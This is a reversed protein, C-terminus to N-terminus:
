PQTRAVFVDWGGATVLPGLQFGLSEKFSGAVVMGLKEDLGVGACEM